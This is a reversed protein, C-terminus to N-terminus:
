RIGHVGSWTARRSRRAVPSFLEVGTVKLRVGNDTLTFPATTDGALRAALIDAQALCPRGALRRAMLKAASALPM